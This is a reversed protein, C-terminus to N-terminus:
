AHREGHRAHIVLDERVQAPAVPRSGELHSQWMAFAVRQGELIDRKLLQNQRLAEQNGRICDVLMSLPALTGGPGTPLDLSLAEFRPYIAGAGCRYIDAWGGDARVALEAQECSLVLDSGHARSILGTLGGEFHLAAWLVAPDNLLEHPATASVPRDLLAQVSLLRRGAAAFLILDIAHVQTWFLAGAGFQVRVERLAGFEGSSARALAARYIPLHRRLAGYTVFLQDDALLRGLAHWEHMSNCLPKEVHLGRVGSRVALAILDSRGVTRTAIGLVAPRVTELMQQPSEFAADIGFAQAASRAAALDHDAFGALKLAPHAVMAEAHSLPFWCAPAHQKMVESTFAGMRGCGIIAAKLRSAM